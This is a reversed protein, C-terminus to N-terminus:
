ASGEAARKAQQAGVVVGSIYVWADSFTKPSTSSYGVRVCYKVGPVKFGGRRYEGYHISIPLGTDVSAVAADWELKTEDSWWKQCPPDIYSGTETQIRQVKM